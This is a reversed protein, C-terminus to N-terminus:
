LPVPLHASHLKVKFPNLLVESDDQTLGVWEDSDLARVAYQSPSRIKLQHGHPGEMRRM